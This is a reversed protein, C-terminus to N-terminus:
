GWENGVDWQFGTLLHATELFGLTLFNHNFRHKIDVSETSEVDFSNPIRANFCTHISHNFLTPKHVSVLKHPTLM